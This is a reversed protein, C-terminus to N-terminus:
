RGRKFKVTITKPKGKIKRYDLLRFEGIGSLYVKSNKIKAAPGYQPYTLSRYKKREIFQQPHVNARGERLAELFRKYGEDVRVAVNQRVQSHMKSLATDRCVYEHIASYQDAQSLYHVDTVGQQKLLNNARRNRTRDAILGNRLRWCAAIHMWLRDDQRASVEM